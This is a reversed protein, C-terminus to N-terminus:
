GRRGLETIARGDFENLLTSLGRQLAEFNRSLETLEAMREVVSVNSEELVGARILADPNPRTSQAGAAHFRAGADRILAAPDDFDVVQPRGVVTDGSVLAGSEDVRVPGPPLKLPGQDGLVAFGDSTALVGDARRTFHGSRTYRQGEPTDVVFFGSGEIALDLERGTPALTGPSFDVRSSGAIVDVASGLSTEFSPRPAVAMSSRSGKYGSTGANALDAALRDLQEARTRLGSLAVYAGGAM